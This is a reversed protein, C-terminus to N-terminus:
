PERQRALILCCNMADRNCTAEIDCAEPGPCDCGPITRIREELETTHLVLEDILDVCMRHDESAAERESRQGALYASTGLITMIALYAAMAVLVRTTDKRNPLNM